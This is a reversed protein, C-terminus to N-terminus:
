SNTIINSGTLINKVDNIYNLLNLTILFALYPSDYVIQNFRYWITNNQLYEGIYINNSIPTLHLLKTVMNNIENSKNKLESMCDNRIFNFYEACPLKGKAKESLKCIIITDISYQLNYFYTSNPKISHCIKIDQFSQNILTQVKYLRNLLINHEQYFAENLILLYQYFNDIKNKIIDSEKSINIPNRFNNLNSLSNDYLYKDNSAVNNTAKFM